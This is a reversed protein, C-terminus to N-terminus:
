SLTGIGTKTLTGTGSIGGSMTFTNGQTDITAGTGTISVANTVTLGDAGAQLISPNTITLTGTGLSTSTGIELTGSSLNTGGTYSNTSSLFLTGTNLKTLVGIGSMTGAYTGNVAQNFFVAANNLING